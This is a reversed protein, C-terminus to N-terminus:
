KEKGKKVKFEDDLYGLDRLRELLLKEVVNGIYRYERKAIKELIEKVDPPVRCAVQEKL